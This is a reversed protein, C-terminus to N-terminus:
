GRMCTKPRHSSTPTIPPFRSASLSCIVDVSLPSSASGAEQSIVTSIVVGNMVKSNM